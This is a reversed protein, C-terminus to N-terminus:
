AFVVDARQTRYQWLSQLGIDSGTLLHCPADCSSAQRASWSDPLLQRPTFLNDGEYIRNKALM